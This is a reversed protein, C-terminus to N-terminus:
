ESEKETDNAEGKNDFLLRETDNEPPDSEQSADEPLDEEPETQSQTKNKARPRRSYVKKQIFYVALIVLAMLLVYPMVRIIFFLLAELFNLFTKWTDKVTSGLRQWFTDKKVPKENYKAVEVLTVNITSYDVDTKIENMRTKIQAIKVQLETLEKEVNLAQADDSIQSLQKIYRKEKAEYIELTTNLDTYEQSVNEVNSTKSRVDGLKDTGGLFTEYQDSPVRVAAEYRKEKDEEEVYYSGQSYGDSYTEQEVFGNVNKLMNKFEAVSKEFDLTDISIDCTYVLMETHIQTSAEKQATDDIGDAEKETGSEETDEDGGSGEIDDVEGSSTKSSSNEYDTDSDSFSLSSDNATGCGACLLVICSFLLAILHKKQIRKTKM